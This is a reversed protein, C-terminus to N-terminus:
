AIGSGDMSREVTGTEVSAAPVREDLWELMFNIVQERDLDNFIEHYNDDWLKLTKDRSRAREYLLQSGQPNTLRDARGHMLLLPMELEHLRARARAAAQMLEHGMRPKLKDSYCLPDDQFRQEVEMDRSLVNEQGALLPVEPIVRALMGSLAKLMPSVDDGLQIAAGSLVLAALEDPHELAYHTAILGGMSHGILMLPLGPHAGRAERVLTHLDSVFYDFKEVCARPGQSEGHGRHDLAWVAYDHAALADIVHGYRAMHEGYGHAVVALAKPNGAPYWQGYVLDVGKTGRLKGRAHTKVHPQPFNHVPQRQQM